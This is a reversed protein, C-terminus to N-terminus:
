NKKELLLRCVLYRLTEHARLHTYSVTDIMRKSVGLALQDWAYAAPTDRYMNRSFQDLSIILALSSEIGEEWSHPPTKLNAANKISIDEFRRRIEADFADNNQYWREPGAEEYWFKLIEAPGSM